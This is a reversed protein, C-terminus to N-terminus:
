VGRHGGGGRHPRTLDLDFRPGDDRDDQQRPQTTPTTANSLTGSVATVGVTSWGLLGSGVTVALMALRSSRM